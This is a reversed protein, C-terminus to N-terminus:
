KCESKSSCCRNMKRTLCFLQSFSDYPVMSEIQKTNKKKVSCLSIFVKISIKNYIAVSIHLLINFSLISCQEPIYRPVKIAFSIFLLNNNPSFFVEKQM